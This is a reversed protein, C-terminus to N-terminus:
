RDSVSEMLAALAALAADNSVPKLAPDKALDDWTRLRQADGAWPSAAFATCEGANMPGGQLALSRTSDASLAALYGPRMAVMYRKAAVHLAVPEAVAAGFLKELLRAGAHEHGDDVGRLTPTGELGSALHGLDHLWAALQLAPTAGAQRALRACQWGHQLQTIGEGEYALDGRERYLRLLEVAKQMPQDHRVQM